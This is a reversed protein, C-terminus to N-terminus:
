PRRDADDEAAARVAPNGSRRAKGAVSTSGASRAPRPSESGTMRRVVLAMVVGCVVYLIPVYFPAGKVFSVVALGFWAATVVAGVVFRTRSSL